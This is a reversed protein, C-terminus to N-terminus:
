TKLDLARVVSSHPSTVKLSGSSSPKQFPLFCQPFLLFHQDGANEGKGAIEEFPNKRLTMLHPNHQLPNIPQLYM